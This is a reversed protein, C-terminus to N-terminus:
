SQLLKGLYLLCLHMLPKLVGAKGPALVACAHSTHVLANCPPRLPAVLAVETVKSASEM